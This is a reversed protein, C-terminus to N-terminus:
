KEKEENPAYDECTIDKCCGIVARNLRTRVCYKCTECYESVAPKLETKEFVPRISDLEQRLDFNTNKLNQIEIGLSRIYRAVESDCTFAGVDPVLIRDKGKKIGFM